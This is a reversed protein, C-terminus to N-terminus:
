LLQRGLADEGRRALNSGSQTKAQAEREIVRAFANQRLCGPRSYPLRCDRGSPLRDVEVAADQAGSCGPDEVVLANREVRLVRRLPISEPVPTRSEVGVAISVILDHVVVS